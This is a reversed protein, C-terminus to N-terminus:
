SLSSCSMSAPTAGSKIRKLTPISFTSSMMASRVCASSFTYDAVSFAAIECTFEARHRLVAGHKKHCELHKQWGPNLNTLKDFWEPTVM